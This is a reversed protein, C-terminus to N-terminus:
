KKTVFHSLSSSPCFRKNVCFACSNGQFCNSCNHWHYSNVSIQVLSYIFPFFHSIPICSHKIAILLLFVNSFQTIHYNHYKSLFLPHVATSYQVHWSRAWTRPVHPQKNRHRSSLTLPLPFSSPFPFHLHAWHMQHLSVDIPFYVCTCACRM